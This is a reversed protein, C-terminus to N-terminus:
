GQPTEQGTSRTSPWSLPWWCQGTTSWGRGRRPQCPTRWRWPSPSQSSTHMRIPCSAYQALQKSTTPPSSSCRRNLCPDLNRSTCAGPADWRDSSCRSGVGFTTRRVRTDLGSDSVAHRDMLPCPDPRARRSARITRLFGPRLPRPGEPFTSSPRVPTCRALRNNM